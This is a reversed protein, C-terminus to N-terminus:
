YGSEDPLKRLGMDSLGLETREGSVARTLPGPMAEAM